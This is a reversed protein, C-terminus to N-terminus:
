PSNFSSMLPIVVLLALRSIGLITKPILVGPGTSLAPFIPCIPFFSCLIALPNTLLSPPLEKTISSPSSLNKLFFVGVSPGGSKALTSFSSVSPKISLGCLSSILNRM